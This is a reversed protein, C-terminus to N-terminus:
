DHCLKEDKFSAPLLERLTLTQCIGNLNALHVPTEPAAFEALRQRCGGCPTILNAGDALILIEAIDRDGAAIMAALAGTEACTGEPFSVNEVNCGSYFSGGSTRIVAGVAFRSYPCYAHEFATKALSFMKQLNNM